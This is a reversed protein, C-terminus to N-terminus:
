AREGLRIVAGDQPGPSDKALTEIITEKDGKGHRNIWAILSQPDIRWYRIPRGKWRRRTEGQSIARLAQSIHRTEPEVKSKPFVSDWSDSIAQPNCLLTNGLRRVLGTGRADVPQPHMLYVVLWECVRSNWDSSALLMDTIESISGEVWFRGAPVVARDRQLALIHQPITTTKWEEKKQPPLSELYDKAESNSRVYLFRQAVAAVDDRTASGKHGLLDDHNATLILRICGYLESPERYKRTLPRATRAIESRLKASTPSGKWLAPIAEDGLVVPCRLLGENFDSLLKDVDVCTGGWINALGESILTKGAGPHGALYLACLMKNLDPACALWDCLKEYTHETGAFLRLWTDVQPDFEPQKNQTFLAIERITETSSDFRTGKATLDVVVSSAVRGYDYVLEAATRPRIGAQTAEILRVPARSLHQKARAPVEEKNCPGSYCGNSTLLYFQHGKQVVWRNALDDVSCGASQAIYELEDKSYPEGQIKRAQEERYRDRWETIKELAGKYATGIEEIGPCGSDIAEMLSLSPGFVRELAAVSVPVKETRRAICLSLALNAEHREGPRAYVDGRLLAQAVPKLPDDIRIYELARRVAAEQELLGVDAQPVSVSPTTVGPLDSVGLFLGTKHHLSWAIARDFTAPLYLLRCGDKTRPDAIGGTFAFWSRWVSPFNAPEVPEKLPVIVRLRTQDNLGHRYTTYIVHEFPELVALSKLIEADSGEDIDLSLANIAVVNKKSRGGKPNMEALVVAPGDKLETVVSEDTLAARNGRLEHATFLEIWGEWPRNDIVPRGTHFKNRYLSFSLYRYNEM